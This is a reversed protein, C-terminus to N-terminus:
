ERALRLATEALDRIVAPVGEPGREDAAALVELALGPKSVREVAGKIVRGASSSGGIGSARKIVDAYGSRFLYHEIDRAPLVM